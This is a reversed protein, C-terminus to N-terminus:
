AESRVEKQFVNGQILVPSNVPQIRDQKSDIKRWGLVKRLQATGIYFRMLTVCVFVSKAVVGLRQM